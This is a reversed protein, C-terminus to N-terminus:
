LGNVKVLVSPRFVALGIREECRLLVKNTRWQEEGWPNLEVRAGLRVLLLASEAFAGVLATGETIMTTLITKKGWLQRVLSELPNGALYDGGGSSKSLVADLYDSPHM